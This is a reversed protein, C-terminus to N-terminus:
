SNEKCKWLISTTLIYLNDDKDRAHGCIVSSSEDFGNAKNPTLTIEFSPTCDGDCKEYLDEGDKGDGQSLDSFRDAVEELNELNQATYILPRHSTQTLHQTCLAKDDYEELHKRPAATFIIEPPAVSCSRPCMGQPPTLSRLRDSASALLSHAVKKVSNDLGWLNDFFSASATSHQLPQKKDFDECKLIQAQAISIPFVLLTLLYKIM